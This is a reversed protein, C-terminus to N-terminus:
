GAGRQASAGPNPVAEFDESGVDVIVLYQSTGFRHGVRANLNPGDASIATKM